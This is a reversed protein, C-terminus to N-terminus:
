QKIRYDYLEWNWTPSDDLKWEEILSSFKEIQGGKRYHNMVKIMDQIPKIDINEILEIIEKYKLFTNFKMEGYSFATYSLSTMASQISSFYGRETLHNCIKTLNGTREKNNNHFIVLKEKLEIQNKMYLFYVKAKDENLSWIYVFKDYNNVKMSSFFNPDKGASLSAERLRLSKWRSLSQKIKGM